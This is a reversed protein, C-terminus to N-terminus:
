RGKCVGVFVKAGVETLSYSGTFHLIRVFYSKKAFMSNDAFVCNRAFIGTEDYFIM